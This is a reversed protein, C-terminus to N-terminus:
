SRGVLARVAQNLVQAGAYPLATYHAGMAGSLARASEQPQPSTDVLMARVGDLRLRLAAALADASAPGRGPRGDRAINAKGDTLFVVIPTEGRRRIQAALGVAADIAIALPTGGGGPLGALSRKARALSRTPPLLIEASVGRFALVAVSDRRVYCDALLLEVAGKAEALRNLAASGSADVVFVTTTQGLQRFRTVHFDEKYVVV